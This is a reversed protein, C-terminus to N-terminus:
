INKNKWNLIWKIFYYTLSTIPVIILLPVNFLMQFLSVCLFIFLIDSAKINLIIKVINKM